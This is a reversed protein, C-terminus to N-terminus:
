LGPPAPSCALIHSDLLALTPAQGLSPGPLPFAFLPDRAAAGRWEGDEESCVGMCACVWGGDGVGWGVGAVGVQAFWEYSGEGAVIAVRRFGKQRLEQEVFDLLSDGFGCRRYSPHVVFAGLEAVPM